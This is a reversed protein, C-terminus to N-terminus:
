LTQGESETGSAVVYEANMLPMSRSAGDLTKESVDKFMGYITVYTGVPPLEGHLAKSYVACLTGKTFGLFDSDMELFVEVSGDLAPQRDLIRGTVAVNSGAYHAPNYYLSFYGTSICGQRFEEPTPTTCTVELACLSDEYHVELLYRQKPELTVADALSWGSVSESTGDAYVATVTLNENGNSIVTGEETSGMYAATLRSIARTTCQISLACSFNEYAIRVTSLTDKELVTPNEVRWGKELLAKKGDRIAYVHLGPNSDTIKTGATTEGDYDATISQILGTTCQVACQTSAKHYTITVVTKKTDELTRPADVTWGTVNEEHGDKFFATVTFGTNKEDLVVGAKTDGSYTVTIHDVTKSAPNVVIVAAAALVVFLLTAAAILIGIKHEEFFGPEPPAPRYGSRPPSGSEYSKNM